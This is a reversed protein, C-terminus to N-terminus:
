HGPTYEVVHRNRDVVITLFAGPTEPLYAITYYYLCDEEVLNFKSGKDAPDYAGGGRRSIETQVM